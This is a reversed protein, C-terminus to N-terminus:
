RYFPLYKHLGRAYTLYERERKMEAAFNDPWPLGGNLPGLVLPVKTLSALLSPLAPSMPTIRHIVDFRGATLDKRFKRWVEWEFALTSPYAIAIATTWGSTSGGRLMKGIKYLPSNIYENDVYEVSAKGLGHKEINERNRVHTAVVTEVQGAIAKTARYGVVPLSAWEPNCDDAVILVRM